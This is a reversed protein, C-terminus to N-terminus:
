TAPGSRGPGTDYVMVYPPVGRRSPTAVVDDAEVVVVAEAHFAPAFLAVGCPDRKREHVPRFALHLRGADRRHRVM